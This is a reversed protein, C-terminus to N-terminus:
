SAVFWTECMVDLIKGAIKSRRHLRIRSARGDGRSAGAKAFHRARLRLEGGPHCQGEWRGARQPFPCLPRVNLVRGGASRKQPVVRDPARGHEVWDVIPTFWDVFDPGVRGGCHLVGPLMFLRM